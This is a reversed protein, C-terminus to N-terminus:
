GEQHDTSRKPTGQSDYETAVTAINSKRVRSM